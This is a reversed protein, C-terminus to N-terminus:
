AADEPIRIDLESVDVEGSILKPLLLDRTQRLSSNKRNLVDKLNFLPTVTVGFTELLEAHPVLLTKSLAIARNLGPVAADSNTFTQHLLSYYLYHLNLVTAVYFVTDIPYFDRFSWHISGVNGKRGVIIGPGQVLAQDHLGIIGSSGYVPVNGQARTSAKLSKGYLLELRDGLKCVEWGQPIKGLPSAVMKVRTHGPFRFNVFWERYLNQAIDELIKIRRENNEILDDYTSFIAAIKRQIPLPPLPVPYSALVQANANPQAAGGM